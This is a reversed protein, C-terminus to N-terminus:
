SKAEAIATALVSSGEGSEAEIGLLLIAVSLTASFSGQVVRSDPRYHLHM